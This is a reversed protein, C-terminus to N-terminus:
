GVERIVPDNEPWELIEIDASGVFDEPEREWIDEPLERDTVADVYERVEPGNAREDYIIVTDSYDKPIKITYEPQKIEYSDETSRAVTPHELLNRYAEELMRDASEEADIVLSTM